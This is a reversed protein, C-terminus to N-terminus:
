PVSSSYTPGNVLTMAVGGSGQDAITTGSSGNIDGMRWWHLPSYGSLDIGKSGSAAGTNAITSVDGSSLTSAFFALEDAKGDFYYYTATKFFDGISWDGDTLTSGRQSGNVYLILNTGDGTVALHTWTGTTLIPIPIFTQRGAATQFRVNGANTVFFGTSGFSAAGIPAFISRTSLSDFYFWGAFSKNGSLTFTSALTANDDAGDLEISVANSYPVGGGGGQADFGYLTGFGPRKMESPLATIGSPVKLDTTPFTISM